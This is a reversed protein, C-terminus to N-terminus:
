SGDRQWSMLYPNDRADGGRRLPLARPPARAVGELARAGRPPRPAVASIDAVEEEAISIAVEAEAVAAACCSSRFELAATPDDAM